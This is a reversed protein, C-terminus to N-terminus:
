TSAYRRVGLRSAVDYENPYRWHRRVVNYEELLFLGDRIESSTVGHGVARQADRVSFTRMNSNREIWDLIRRAHQLSQLCGEDFALYAHEAFFNALRIGADMSQADLPREHPDEHQLLHVAGALRVAHGALKELFANFQPTVGRRIELKIAEVYRQWIQRADEVMSITHATRANGDGQPREIALLSQIKKAYRWRIDSPVYEQTTLFRMPRDLLVPLIRPLLGDSALDKNAYLHEAVVPQVYSCCAFCPMAMVVAESTSTEDGFPEMTYGKLLIGDESARVRRKWFGGGEGDLIGLAEGQRAMEMALAKLTPSDVLLRPLPRPRLDHRQTLRMQRMVEEEEGPSMHEDLKSLIKKEIKRCIKSRIEQDLQEEKFQTQLRREFEDFPERLIKVIASKRSGSPMSVLIYETLAEEYSSKVGIKFNGRAAVFVAGLFAPAVYECPVDVEMSIDEVVQRALSPLCEMPFRADCSIQEPLKKSLRHIM